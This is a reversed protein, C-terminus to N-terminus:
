FDCCIFSFHFIQQQSRSLELLSSTMALCECCGVEDSEDGCDDVLDCLKMYEVCAKTHKCHFHTHQPCHAAPPPMSCNNFTVDDLASVGDFVGLSIKSLSIQFPRTLRGLQVTAQNWQPGQDYLTRWLVTTNPDGKIQLNMNAAGVSLGSNYHRDSIFYLRKSHTWWCCPVLFM